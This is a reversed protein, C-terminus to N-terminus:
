EKKSEKDNELAGEVLERLCGTTIGAKKLWKPARAAVFKVGQNIVENDFEIEGVTSSLSRKAAKKGYGIGKEIFKMVESNAKFGIYNRIGWQALFVLVAFLMEMIYNSLIEM